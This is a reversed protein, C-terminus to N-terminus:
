IINNKENNKKILGFYFCDKDIRSAGFPIKVNKRNGYLYFVKVDEPINEDKYCTERCAQMMSAYGGEDNALVGVIIM